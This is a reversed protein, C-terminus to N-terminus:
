LSQVLGTDLSSEESEWGEPFAKKCFNRIQNVKGCPLKSMMWVLPTPHPTPLGAPLGKRFIHGHSQWTEARAWVVNEGVVTSKMEGKRLSQKVVPIITHEQLIGKSWELLWGNSATVYCSKLYKQQDTLSLQNTYPYTLFLHQHIKAGQRWHTLWTRVRNEEWMFVWTIKTGIIFCSKKKKFLLYTNHVVTVFGTAIICAITTWSKVEMFWTWFLSELRQSQEHIWTRLCIM